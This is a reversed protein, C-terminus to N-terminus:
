GSAQEGMSEGYIEAMRGALKAIDFEKAARAKALRGLHERRTRNELLELVASKLAQSDNAATIIGNKGNELLEPYCGANYAVVAKEASMAAQVMLGSVDNRGASVMLDAAALLRHFAKDPELFTVDKELAMIRMQRHLEEAQLGQGMVFLHTQPLTAVIEALAELLDAQSSSEELPAINAIFLPKEKHPCYADRFQQRLQDREELSRDIPAINIGGYVVHLKTAAEAQKAFADAVAQSPCVVAKVGSGYEAASPASRLNYRTTITPTGAAFLRSRSLLAAASAGHVHVIGAESQKLQQSLKLWRLPNLTSELALPLVEVGAAEAFEWLRSQEPATVVSSLGYERLGAALSAIRLAPEWECDAAVLHLVRNNDPM